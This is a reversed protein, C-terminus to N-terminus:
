LWRNVPHLYYREATQLRQELESSYRLYLTNNGKINYSSLKKLQRNLPNYEYPQFQFNLMLQHLEEANIGYRQSNQNIELIVAILQPNAFIKPASQLVYYEFGEVDIKIVNPLQDQLIDTLTQMTIPITNSNTNNIDVHNLVDLHATFYRIGAQTDIGVAHIQVKTNLDNLHIQQTLQIVTQPIPEIAITKAGIVGSTLLTYCGVNAGVDVFLDTNRLYHLIFGMEYYEQLGVYINATAGLMGNMVYLQTKNIWPISIVTDTIRSSIQWHLYNSFVRIYRSKALPHKILFTFLALFNKIISAM